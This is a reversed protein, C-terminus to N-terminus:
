SDLMTRLPWCRSEDSRLTGPITEDSVRRSLEFVATTTALSSIGLTDLFNAGLGTVMDPWRHSRINRVSRQGSLVYWRCCYWVAMLTLSGLLARTVITAGM